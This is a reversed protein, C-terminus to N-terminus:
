ASQKDPFAAIVAARLNGFSVPGTNMRRLSNLTISHQSRKRENIARTSMVYFQWQDLYLPNLSSKDLHALLAFVYVDALRSPQDALLNTRPDWARARRVSFSILSPKRQTWSQLYASSKVEVKIGEETTLDFASWEDRVGDTPADLARAVIFEALRGRSANSVLDSMSWQWYELVKFGAPRGGLCFPESGDRRASVVPPFPSGMSEKKLVPTPKENSLTVVILPDPGNSILREGIASPEDSM